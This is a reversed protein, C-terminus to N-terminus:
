TAPTSAIARGAAPRARPPRTTATPTAPEASLQDGTPSRSPSTPDPGGEAETTEQEDMAEGFAEALAILACDADKIALVQGDQQLMLWWLCQLARPDTEGCAKFWSDLTFGYALHMAVAQKLTIAELDFEWERGEFTIRM